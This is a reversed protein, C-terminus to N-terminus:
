TRQRNRWNVAEARQAHSIFAYFKLTTQLSDGIADAVVEAPVGAQLAASAFSKRLAHPTVRGAWETKALWTEWASRVEGDIDLVFDTQREAYARELVPRLVDSITTIVRRKRSVEGNRFDITGAALDVSSWRLQRIAEARAGTELALYVFRTLRTLRAGEPTHAMAAALFADIETPALYNKRPPGSPPLPIHPVDNHALRRDRVALNIAAILVGLERRLTGDAVMRVRSYARVVGSNLDAVRYPGLERRLHEICIVTTPATKKLSAAYHKLVSEVTPTAERGAITLRNRLWENLIAEAEAGDKSGTSQYRSVTRGGDRESWRIEYVNSRNLGLRPNITDPM